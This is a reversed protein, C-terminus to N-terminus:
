NQGHPCHLIKSKSSFCSFRNFNYIDVETDSRSFLQNKQEENDKAELERELDHIKEKQKVIKSAYSCCMCFLVFCIEAIAGFLFDIFNIKHYDEFLGLYLGLFVFLLVGVAFLIITYIPIPTKSDYRYFDETLNEIHFRNFLFLILVLGAGVLCAVLVTNM